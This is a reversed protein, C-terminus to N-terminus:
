GVQPLNEAIRTRPLSTVSAPRSNSIQADGAAAGAVAAVGRTVLRGPASRALTAIRRVACPM